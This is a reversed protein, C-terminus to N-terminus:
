INDFGISVEGSLKDLVMWHDLHTQAQNTSIVCFYQHFNTKELVHSPSLLDTCELIIIRLMVAKLRIKLYMCNYICALDVISKYM